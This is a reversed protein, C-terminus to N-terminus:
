SQTLKRDYNSCLVKQAAPTININAYKLTIPPRKKNVISPRCIKYAFSTISRSPSISVTDINQHLLYRRIRLCFIQHLATHPSRSTDSKIPRLVKERGNAIRHWMKHAVLTISRSPSISVTDIDQHLVYRLRRLSFTQHPTTPPSRSTDSKGSM